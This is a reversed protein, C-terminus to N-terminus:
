LNNKEKIQAECAGRLNNVKIINIIIIITIIVVAVVM